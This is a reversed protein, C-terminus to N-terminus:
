RRAQPCIETPPNSTPIFLIWSKQMQNEVTKLKHGRRRHRIADISKSARCVNEFTRKSKRSGNMEGGGRRWGMRKSIDNRCVVSIQGVSYDFVFLHKFLPIIDKQNTLTKPAIVATPRRIKGFARTASGTPDRSRFFFLVIKWSLLM